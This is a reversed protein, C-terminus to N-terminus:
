HRWWIRTRGEPLVLYTNFPERRVRTGGSEKELVTCGTECTPTSVERGPAGLPLGPVSLGLATPRKELLLKIDQAPVHGEIFYGDVVATPVAELDQPVQLRRKIAPMDSEPHRAVTVTFGAQRLHEAYDICALCVIPSNLEIGPLPAEGGRVGGGALGAALGAAVMM